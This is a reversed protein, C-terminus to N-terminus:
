EYSKSKLYLREQRVQEVLYNCKEAETMSLMTPVLLSTYMMLQVLRRRHPEQVHFVKRSASKLKSLDISESQGLMPVHESVETGVAIQLQLLEMQFHDNWIQLFDWVRDQANLANFSAFALPHSKEAKWEKLAEKLPEYIGKEADSQDEALYRGEVELYSDQTAWVQPNLFHDIAVPSVVTHDALYQVQGNTEDAIEQLNTVRHTFAVAAFTDVELPHSFPIVLQRHSSQQLDSYLQRYRPEFIQLSLEAKPMPTERQPTFLPLLRQEFIIEDEDELNLPMLSDALFLPSSSLPFLPFKTNEDDDLELSARVPCEEIKPLWRVRDLQEMVWAHESYEGKFGLLESQQQQQEKKPQQNQQQNKTVWRRHFAMIEPHLRNLQQWGNLGTQIRETLDQPSSVDERFSERLVRQFVEVNDIVVTEGGASGQMIPPIFKDLPLTEDPIDRCWRLLSRYVTIVLRKKNHPPATVVTKIAATM